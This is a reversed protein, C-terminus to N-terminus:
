QRAARLGLLSLRRHACRDDGSVAVVSQCDAAFELTYRGVVDANCQAFPPTASVDIVEVTNGSLQWTSNLTVDGCTGEATHDEAFVM